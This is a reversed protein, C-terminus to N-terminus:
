YESFAYLTLMVQATPTTILVLAVTPRGIRNPYFAIAIALLVHIGLRAYLGKVTVVAIAFADKPDVATYMLVNGMGHMRVWYATHM